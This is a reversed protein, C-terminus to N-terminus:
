LDESLSAKVASEDGICVRFISGDSKGNVECVSIGVMSSIVMGVMFPGKPRGDAEVAERIYSRAISLFGGRCSQGTSNGGQGAEM